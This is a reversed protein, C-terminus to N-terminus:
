GVLLVTVIPVVLFEKWGALPNIVSCAVAFAIGYIWIKHLLEYHRTLFGWVSPKALSSNSDSVVASDLAARQALYEKLPDRSRDFM